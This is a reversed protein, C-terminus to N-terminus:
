RFLWFSGHEVHVVVAVLRRIAIKLCNLDHIPFYDDGDESDAEKPLSSKVIKV